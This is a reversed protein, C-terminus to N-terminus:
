RRLTEVAGMDDPATIRYEEIRKVLERYAATWRAHQDTYRADDGVTLVLERELRRCTLTWFNVQDALYSLREAPAAAKQEMLEVGELSAVGVTGVTLLLATGASMALLLQSRLSLDTWRLHRMPLNMPM